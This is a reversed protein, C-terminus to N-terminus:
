EVRAARLLNYEEEIPPIPSWGAAALEPLQSVVVIGKAIKARVYDRDGGILDIERPRGGSFSPERKPDDAVRRERDDIPKTQAM